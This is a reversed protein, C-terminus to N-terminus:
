KSQKHGTMKISKILKIEPHNDYYKKLAISIKLKQKESIIKNVGDGGDTMNTLPGKRKDNRGIMSIIEIEIKHAEEESINQYLKTIIPVMNHKIIKRIKRTKHPNFGKKTTGETLHALYRNNKGKGIYFPEYLFSIKEYAYKGPKRPDLYAYVYYMAKM